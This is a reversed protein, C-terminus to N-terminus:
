VVPTVNLSETMRSSKCAIICIQSVWSKLSSLREELLSKVSTEVKRPRSPTFMPLVKQNKHIAEVLFVFVLCNFM